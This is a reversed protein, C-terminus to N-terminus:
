CLVKYEYFNLHFVGDRDSIWKNSYLQLPGQKALPPHHDNSKISTHQTSGPCLWETQKLSETVSNADIGHKWPFWILHIEHKHAEDQWAILM